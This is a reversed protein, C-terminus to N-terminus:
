EGIVEFYTQSHLERQEQQSALREARVQIGLMCKRMMVIDAFEILLHFLIAPSLWAYHVRVRTILRTHGKDIPDLVWLWSAGSKKDGWLMWENSRFDNVVMGQKGNPSLPIIDGIQINQYEPLISEASKRALNDLLDYSYWGARSVGIQVIWPYIYEPSTNITVGRTANFSPREVIEDGPLTRLVEDDSAGWRLQWPRVWIMYVIGFSIGLTLLLLFTQM